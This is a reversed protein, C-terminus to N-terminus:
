KVAAYILLACVVIILIGLIIKFDWDLLSEEDNMWPLIIFLFYIMMGIFVLLGILGILYSTDM